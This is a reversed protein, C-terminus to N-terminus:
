VFSETIMDITLLTTYDVLICAEPIIFREASSQTLDREHWTPIDELAPIVLSRVIRALGCVRGCIEQNWEQPIRLNEVQKKAELVELLESKRLRELEQLGTAFSEVSAAVLSLVCILEAYRDRQVIQTSIDAAKIGLRQMVLGQIKMAHPGLGAQTGVAGSMKGVLVREGCQRLRQIHRSTETQLAALNYGLIAPIARQDHRRSITTDEKHRRAKQGLIEHLKCLKKEILDLADKLQLATATDKVDSSTAGLHVYAGSTGCSEALARVLAATDHKINREIEKVRGLKVYKLSARAAIKEADGEPINGVQAHAWALAAEVDLMKQLRTKEEFIKIM